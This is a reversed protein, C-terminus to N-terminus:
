IGTSVTHVTDTIRDDNKTKIRLSFFSSLLKIKIKLTNKRQYRTPLTRPVTGETPVKFTERIFNTNFFGTYKNM